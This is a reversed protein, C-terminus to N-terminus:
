MLPSVAVVTHVAIPKDANLSTKIRKSIIKFPRKVVISFKLYTWHIQKNTQKNFMRILSIDDM